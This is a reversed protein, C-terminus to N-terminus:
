VVYFGAVAFHTDFSFAARIRKQHMLVFSTADVMSLKHFEPRELYPHARDVDKASLDLVTMRPVERVSSFWRNALDRSGKRDLFTFTELVVATSTYLRAGTRQLASWSGRAREHLSDRAVALAIWAGTDVFVREDV